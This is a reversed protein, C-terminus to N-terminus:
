CFSAFGKDQDAFDIMDKAERDNISCGLQMMVTSLEEADIM